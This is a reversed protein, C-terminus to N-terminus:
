HDHSHAGGHTHAHGHGNGHHHEKIHKELWEPVTSEPYSDFHSIYPKIDLVPSGDIADLGKVAMTGEDTSFDLLEVVSLGIPNPRVPMRTAFVKVDKPKAANKPAKWDKYQNIWFLIIVHSYGKLGGLGRRYQSKLRIICKDATWGRSLHCVDKFNKIDSCVTGIEKLEM